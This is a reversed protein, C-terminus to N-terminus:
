ENKGSIIINYSLFGKVLPLKALIDEVFHVLRLVGCTNPIPYVHSEVSITAIEGFYHALLNELYKKTFHQHGKVLTMHFYLLPNHRNAEFVVMKGGKKTVRKMERLARGPNQIHHLADKELVVDFFSDKFPLNRADAVIFALNDDKTLGFSDLNIDIGIVFNVRPLILRCDKGDGCGVDLIYCRRDVKIEAKSLIHEHWDETNWQLAKYGLLPL